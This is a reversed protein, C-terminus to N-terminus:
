DVEFAVHARDARFVLHSFELRREKRRSSTRGLQVLQGILAPDGPAAGLQPGGWASYFSLEVGVEAAGLDLGSPSSPSEGRELAKVAPLLWPVDDAPAYSDLLCVTEDEIEFLATVHTVRSERPGLELLRAVGEKARENRATRVRVSLGDPREALAMLLGLPRIKRRPAAVYAGDGRKLEILGDSVLLAMARRIVTRSVDYGEGIERETPFRSGPAWAGTVLRERLAAGLQFYLPVASERDLRRGGDLKVDAPKIPRGRRPKGPRAV